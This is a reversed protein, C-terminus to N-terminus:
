VSLKKRAQRTILRIQGFRVFRVFERAPTARIACIFSARICPSYVPFVRSICPFYGPSCRRNARNRKTIRAIRAIRAIRGGGEFRPGTAPASVLNGRAGDIPPLQDADEAKHGHPCAADKRRRADDNTRPTQHRYNPPAHPTSAAPARARRAAHQAPHTGRLLLSAAPLAILALSVGRADHQRLPHHHQLIRMASNTDDM